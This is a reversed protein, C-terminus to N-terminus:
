IELAAAGAAEAVRVSHRVHMADGWGCQADLILPLSSAARIDLVTQAMRDLSLNAETATTIYGLTGGGLYTAEFGAAEALRASLPDLVLPVLTPEEKALLRRLLAGPTSSESQLPGQRM